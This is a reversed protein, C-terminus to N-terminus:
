SCSQKPTLRRTRTWTTVLKKLGKLYNEPSFVARGQEMPSNPADTLPRPPGKPMRVIVPVILKGVGLTKGAALSLMATGHCQNHTSSPSDDEREEGDYDKGVQIWRM